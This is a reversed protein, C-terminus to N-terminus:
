KQNYTWKDTWFLYHSTQDLHPQKVLGSVSCEAKFYWQVRYKFCKGWPIANHILISNWGTIWCKPVFIINPIVLPQSMLNFLPYCIGYTKFKKHMQACAIICTNINYLHTWKVLLKIPNLYIWPRCTIFILRITKREGLSSVSSTLVQSSAFSDISMGVGISFDYPWLLKAGLYVGQVSHVALMVHAYVHIRNTDAKGKM